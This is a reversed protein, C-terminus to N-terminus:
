LAHRRSAARPRGQPRALLDPQRPSLPQTQKSSLGRCNKNKNKGKVGCRCFYVRKADGALLPCIECAFVHQPPHLCGGCGMVFLSLILLLKSFPIVRRTGRHGAREKEGGSGVGGSREGRRRPSRRQPGPRVQPRHVDARRSPAGAAPSLSFLSASLFLVFFLVPQPDADESLQGGRKECTHRGVRRRVGLEVFVRPRSVAGVVVDNWLNSARVYLMAAM